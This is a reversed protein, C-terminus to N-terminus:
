SPPPAIRNLVVWGPGHAAPTSSRIMPFTRSSSRPNRHPPPSHNTIRSAVYGGVHPPPDAVPFRVQFCTPSRHSFTELAIMGANERRGKWDRRHETSKGFLGPVRRTRLSFLVGCLNSLVCLAIASPVGGALTGWGGASRTPELNRRRLARTRRVGVAVAARGARRPWGSDTGWDGFRIQCLYPPLPIFVSLKRTGM